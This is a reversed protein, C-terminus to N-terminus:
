DFPSRMRVVMVMSTVSWRCMLSEVVAGGHDAEVGFTFQADVSLVSNDTPYPVSASGYHIYWDMLNNAGNTRDVAIVDDIGDGNMDAVLPTMASTGFRFQYEQTTDRDTDGLWQLDGGTPRIVISQDFGLGSLDGARAYDDVGQPGVGNNSSSSFGYHFTIEASADGTALPQTDLYHQLLDNPHAVDPRVAAINVAMLKREELSEFIPQLTRRSLNSLLQWRLSNRKERANRNRDGSTM